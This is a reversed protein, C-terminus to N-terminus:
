VRFWINASEFVRRTSDLLLDSTAEALYRCVSLMLVVDLIRSATQSQRSSATSCRYALEDSTLFSRCCRLVSSPVPVCCTSRDLTPDSATSSSTPFAAASVGTRARRADSRPPLRVPLVSNRSNLAPGARRGSRSPPPNKTALSALSLSSM